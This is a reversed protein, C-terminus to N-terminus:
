VGVLCDAGIVRCAEACWVVWVNLLLLFEGCLEHELMFCQEHLGRGRFVM